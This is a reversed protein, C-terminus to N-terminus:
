RKPIRPKIGDPNREPQLIGLRLQRVARERPSRGIHPRAQAFDNSAQNGEGSRGPRARGGRNDHRVQLHEFGGPIGEVRAIGHPERVEHGLGIACQRFLQPSERVRPQEVPGTM